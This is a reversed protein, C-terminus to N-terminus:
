RATHKSPFLYKNVIDNAYAEEVMGFYSAFHLYTDTCAIDKMRHPQNFFYRCAVFKGLNRGIAQKLINAQINPILPLSVFAAPFM